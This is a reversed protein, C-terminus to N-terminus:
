EEDETEDDYESDLVVPGRGSQCTAKVRIGDIKLDKSYIYTSGNEKTIAEKLDSFDSSALRVVMPTGHDKTFDEVCDRVEGAIHAQIYDSVMKTNHLDMDSPAVIQINYKERTILM